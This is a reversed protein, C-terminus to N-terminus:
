QRLRMVPAEHVTANTDPWSMCVFDAHWWQPTACSSSTWTGHSQGSHSYAVSVHLGQNCSASAFSEYCPSGSWHGAQNRLAPRKGRRSAWPTSRASRSRKIYRQYPMYRATMAAHM